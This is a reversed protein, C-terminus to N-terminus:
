RKLTIHLAIIAGSGDTKVSITFKPTVSPQILIKSEEVVFPGSPITIDVEFSSFHGNINEVITEM